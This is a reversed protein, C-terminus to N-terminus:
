SYETVFTLKLLIRTKSELVYNLSNFCYGDFLVSKTSRVDFMIHVYLSDHWLIIQQNPIDFVAPFRKAIKETFWYRVARNWMVVFCAISLLSLFREVLRTGSFQGKSM